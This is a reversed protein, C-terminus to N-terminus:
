AEGGRALSDMWGLFLERMRRSPCYLQIEGGDRIASRWVWQVMCSLAYEDEHPDVGHGTLYRKEFPNMYVNVCYALATRSRYDNTARLNFATFSRGFRKDKLKERSSEFTTWMRQKTSVGAYNTFFNLVNKRLRDIDSHAGGRKAFWTSSLANKDNGVANLKPADLVHVRDKINKVYEPVHGLGDTFSYEKGDYAVNIYSFPISELGFYWRITQGEFMYTLIFVDDFADLIERSFIWYYADLVNGGKSKDDPVVAMTRSRTIQFLNSFLGDYGDPPRFRVNEGDRVAYGAKTLMEYDFSTLSECKEIVDVDEDIILTYHQEKLTLIMDPTYRLFMNHTSAINRGAEILSVTHEFKHFNFQRLKSSPEVFRLAPCAERIRAAEDLYPTIYIFKRDPHSNMYQIAASSKGSGMIADCIKIM